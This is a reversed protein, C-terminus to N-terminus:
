ENWAEIVAVTYGSLPFELHLWPSMSKEIRTTVCDSLAKTHTYDEFFIRSSMAHGDATKNWVDEFRECTWESGTFTWDTVKLSRFQFYYPGEFYYPPFYFTHVFDGSTSWPEMIGAPEWSIKNDRWYPAGRRYTKRANKRPPYKSYLMLLSTKVDCTINFAYPDIYESPGIDTIMFYPKIEEPQEPPTPPNPRM